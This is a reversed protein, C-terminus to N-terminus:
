RDIQCSVGLTADLALGWEIIAPYFIAASRVQIEIIFCLTNQGIDWCWFCRLEYKFDLRETADLEPGELSLYNKFTATIEVKKKIRLGPTTVPLM